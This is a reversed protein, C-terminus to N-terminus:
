EPHFHTSLIPLNTGNAFDRLRLAAFEPDLLFLVAELFALVNM